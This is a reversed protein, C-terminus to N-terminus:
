IDDRLKQKMDGSEFKFKSGKFFNSEYLFNNNLDVQWLDLLSDSVHHNEDWISFSSKVVSLSSTDRNELTLRFQRFSIM